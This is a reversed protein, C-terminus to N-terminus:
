WVYYCGLVTAMSVSPGLGVYMLYIIVLFHSYSPVQFMRIFCTIWLGGAFVLNVLRMYGNIRAIDTSAIRRELEDTHEKIASPMQVQSLQSKFQTSIQRFMESAHSPEASGTAAEDEESGKPASAAASFAATTSVSPEMM